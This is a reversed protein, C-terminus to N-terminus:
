YCAPSISTLLVSLTRGEHLNCEQTYTTHTHTLFYAIFLDLLVSAKGKCVEGQVDWPCWEFEAHYREIVLGGGEGSKGAEMCENLVRQNGGGGGYASYM